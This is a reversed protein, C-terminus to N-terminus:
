KNNRKKSIEKSYVAFSLRKIDFETFFRDWKKVVNEIIIDIDAATIEMPEISGIFTDREVIEDDMFSSKTFEEPGIESESEEENKDIESINEM